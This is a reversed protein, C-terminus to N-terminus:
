CWAADEALRLTFFIKISTTTIASTTPGPLAFNSLQGKGIERLPAGSEAREQSRLNSYSWRPPMTDGRFIRVILHILLDNGRRTPSCLGLV